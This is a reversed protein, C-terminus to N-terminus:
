AMNPPQVLTFNAQSNFNCKIMNSYVPNHSIDKNVIIVNSMVVDLELEARWRSSDIFLNNSHFCRISCDGRVFFVVELAPAEDGATALNLLLLILDLVGSPRRLEM